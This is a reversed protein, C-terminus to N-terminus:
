SLKEIAIRDSSVKKPQPAAMAAIGFVNIRNSRLVRAAERGTTGTTYIDDILLVSVKTTPPSFNRGLRFANKINQERQSPSLEFMAQTERIRQLGQSQLKYRTSKCFSKAIIEAQNFGREQQRKPHLPIPIVLLKYNSLALPSNLWAEALWTGLLEGLQPHNEYKFAAIARKLKGEYVGWVFLPLEGQWFQCPDAMRCDQLQRQCYSCIDEAAPRDCFPCNAQLFLSALGKFM